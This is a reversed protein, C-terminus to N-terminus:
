RRASSLDPEDRPRLEAGDLHRRALAREDARRGVDRLGARRAAPDDAHAVAGQRDARRARHRHLLRQDADPQCQRGTIVKGNAIIPGSSANARIGAKLVQTEWVLKGTQADVAYIPTTPAPTSSRRAGSRWTATPAATSARPTSASTSGCCTAPRRTSRWSSTAATRSTCRRRRLRAAHSGAHPGTGIGRTWVMKLQSVNNRNIENLPSYGWSDLTRRWMLWNAPDPKWLM